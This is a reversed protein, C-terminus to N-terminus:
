ATTVGALKDPGILGASLALWVLHADNEAGIKAKIAYHHNRVTKQSLNLMNAIADSSLGTALLRLIETERTSLLAIAPNTGSLRDAALAQCIDDSLARGGRAVAEVARVLEGPPSSKTIYGSAGAEFAKLAFASGAHMSFILIRADKDWDRIRRVAELGSAGQLTLDMVVVDPKHAKYAIYAQAVDEAEACVAFQQRMELLRRYGERVVPHDDVLLISITGSM